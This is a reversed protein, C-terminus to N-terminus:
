ETLADLAANAGKFAEWSADPAGNLKPPLAPESDYPFDTFQFLWYGDARSGANLLGTGLDGPDFLVGLVGGLIRVHIGENALLTRTRDTAIDYTLHTVPRQATGAGRLWGRYFWATSVMVGYVSIELAPSLQRAEDVLVAVRLATEEELAGYALGVLGRDQLWALREWAEVGAAEGALDESVSEIAAEVRGWTDSDFAYGQAYWLAGAGYLEMDLNIGAIGPHAAQALAAGLFMPRIAQEWYVDNLPPPAKLEQGYGGVAKGIEAEVQGYVATLWNVGLFLQAGSDHAAAALEAFPPSEGGVEFYDILWQSDIGVIFTRVGNAMAHEFYAKMEDYPRNSGWGVRARGHVYWDPTATEESPPGLAVAEELSPAGAPPEPPADAVPRGSPPYLAEVRGGDGLAPLGDGVASLLGGDGVVHCGQPAHVSADRAVASIHGLATRAVSETGDLLGLDLVPKDSMYETHVPLQVVSRPLVAVMGAGPLGSPALVALPQEELPISVADASQELKRWLLINKHTRALVAVDDGDCTLTATVGAAFPGLAAMAGQDAAPYGVPYNLTWELSGPYAAAM